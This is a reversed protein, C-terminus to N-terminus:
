LSAASWDQALIVIVGGQDIYIYVCALELQANHPDVRYPTEAGGASGWERYMANRENRGM